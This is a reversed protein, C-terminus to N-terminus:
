NLHMTTVKVECFGGSLIKTRRTDDFHHATHVSLESPNVIMRREAEPAPAPPPDDEDNEEDDSYILEKCNVEREKVFFLIIKFRFILFPWQPPHYSANIYIKLAFNSNKTQHGVHSRVFTMSKQTVQTPQIFLFKLYGCILFQLYTASSHM